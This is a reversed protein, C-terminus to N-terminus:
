IHVSSLPIQGSVGGHRSSDRRPRSLFSAALIPSASGVDGCAPRFQVDSLIVGVTIMPTGKSSSFLNLGVHRERALELTRPLRWTM